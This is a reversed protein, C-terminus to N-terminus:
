AAKGMASANNALLLQVHELLERASFPKSMVKRINTRAIAEEPVMYGRATLLIAPVGSTPAHVRLKQCLDLGSSHAMQLDTVVLDPTNSKAIEFAEEGDAADLVRFGASRLKMSVVERIPAEDDAILILRSTM